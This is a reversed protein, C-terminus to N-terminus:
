PCSVIFSTQSTVGTIDFPGGDTVNASSSGCNYPQGAPQNSWTVPNSATCTCGNIANTATWTIRAMGGYSITASPRISNVYATVTAPANVIFPISVTGSYVTAGESGGITFDFSSVATQLEGVTGATSMATTVTGGSLEIYHLVGAKLISFSTAGEIITTNMEIDYAYYNAISSANITAVISYYGASTPATFYQTSYVTQGGAVNTNLLTKSDYERGSIYGTILLNRTANSCSNYVATSTVSISAGPNYTTGYDLNINATVLPTSGGGGGGVTGEEYELVLQNAFIKNTPTLITIGMLLFLIFLMVTPITPTKKKLKILAIALIIIALVIIIAVAMSATKEKTSTEVSFTKQDLIKGDKDKLTLSVQPDVCSSTISIPIETKTSQNISTPQNILSACKKGHGNTIEGSLMIGSLVSSRGLRSGPFSDASPSWSFALTATEGRDYYDKDLSLNQITASAGQLVYHATVSNSVSEGYVLTTVVDYAQPVTAKPLLVSINKKEGAKFTIPENVVETQPVIEGYATRFHTVFVPNAKITKDASNTATCSLKLTEEFSIDIGQALNYKSSGKEDVINLYCTESSLSVGKFTSNLKIKGLLSLGFPSGADNKSAILIVYDGSLNNPATYTINRSITSNEALTLSEDYVKEDVVFQGNETEQVLKVGYKVGTQVGEENALDFSIDLVNNEQSIIKANQINVTALVIGKTPVTVAEIQNSIILSLFVFLSLSIKFISKM